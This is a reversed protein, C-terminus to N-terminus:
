RRRLVFLGLCCCAALIGFLVVVATGWAIASIPMDGALPVTELDLPNATPRRLQPFDPLPDAPGPIDIILISALHTDPPSPTDSIISIPFSVNQSAMFINAPVFVFSYKM